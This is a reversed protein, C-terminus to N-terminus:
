SHEQKHLYRLLFQMDESTKSSVLFDHFSEGVQQTRKHSNRQEVTENVHGDTYHKM